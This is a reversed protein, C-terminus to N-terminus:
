PQLVFDKWNDGKKIHLHRKNIRSEDGKWFEFSYPTFEFGGWYDPCDMLNQNSKVQQYRILIDEYSSTIESQESAIALANKDASRSKFYEKNLSIPTKKIFAKIRIQTNISPWFFLVAIQNMSYFAKSKPSNYNTFFIFKNDNIFKINVYRSDIENIDKNYSSIAAAEINKQGAHLADNYIKKFIIFPKEQCINKIEIM